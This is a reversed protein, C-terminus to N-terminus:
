LRLQTQGDATAGPGDGTYLVILGGHELNHIWGQPIVSDNPGYVRPPIPGASGPKNVHSGSAPACYTYTVFQGVAIHTRGQDPQM